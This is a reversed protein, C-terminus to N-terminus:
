LADRISAPLHIQVLENVRQALEIASEPHSFGALNIDLFARNLGACQRLLDALGKARAPDQGCAALFGRLLKEAGQQAHYIASESMAGGADAMVEMALLDNAAKSLWEVADKHASGAM